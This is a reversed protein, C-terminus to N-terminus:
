HRTGNMGTKKRLEAVTMISYQGENANQISELLRRANRPSRLLYATELLSSLEDAPLLALDPHGRRKVLVAERSTVAKDWLRELNKKAQSCTVTSM